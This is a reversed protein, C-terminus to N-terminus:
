TRWLIQTFSLHETQHGLAPSLELLDYVATVVLGTLCHPGLRRGGAPQRWPWWWLQDGLDQLDALAHQWEQDLQVLFQRGFLVRQREAPQGLHIRGLVRMSVAYRGDFSNQGFSCSATPVALSAQLVDTPFHTWGYRGLLVTRSFLLTHVLFFPSYDNIFIVNSHSDM